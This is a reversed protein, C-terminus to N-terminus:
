IASCYLTVSRNQDEYIQRDSFIVLTRIAYMMIRPCRNTTVDVPQRSWGDINIISAVIKLRLSLPPDFFQVKTLKREDKLALTENKTSRSISINVFEHQIQTDCWKGKITKSAEEQKYIISKLNHTLSKKTFSFTSNQCYILKMLSFAQLYKKM